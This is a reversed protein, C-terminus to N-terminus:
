EYLKERMVRFQIIGIENLRKRTIYRREITGDPLRIEFQMDNKYLPKDRIEGSMM